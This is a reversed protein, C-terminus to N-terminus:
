LKQFLLFEEFEGTILYDSLTQCLYMSTFLLAYRYFIDVYVSPINNYIMHLVVVTTYHQM